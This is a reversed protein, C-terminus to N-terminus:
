DPSIRDFTFHFVIFRKVNSQKPREFLLTIFSCCGHDTATYYVIGEREIMKVETSFFLSLARRGLVLFDKVNFKKDM